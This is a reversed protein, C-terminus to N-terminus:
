SSRKKKKPFKLPVKLFEKVDDPRNILIGWWEMLSKDTCWNTSCNWNPGGTANYLAVLAMRTPETKNRAQNVMYQILM